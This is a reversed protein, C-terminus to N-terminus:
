SDNPNKGLTSNLWPANETVVIISPGAHQLALDLAGRLEADSDVNVGPCGFAEAVKIFDPAVPNVGIEPIGRIANAASEHLSVVSFGKVKEVMLRISMRVSPDDDVISVKTISGM